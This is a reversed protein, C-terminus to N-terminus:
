NTHLLQGFGRYKGRYNKISDRMQAPSQQMWPKNYQGNYSKKKKKAM